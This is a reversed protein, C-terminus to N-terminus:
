WCIGNTRPNEQLGIWSRYTLFQQHLRNLPSARRMIKLSDSIQVNLEQFARMETM